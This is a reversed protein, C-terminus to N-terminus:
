GRRHKALPYWQATRGIKKCNECGPAKDGPKLTIPEALPLDFLNCGACRFKGTEYKGLAEVIDGESYGWMRGMARHFRQSLEDQALRTISAIRQKLQFQEPRVPRIDTLELFAGAFYKHDPLGYLNGFKGAALNGADLGAGEVPKLPWVMWVGGAKHIKQLDCTPTVLMAKARQVSVAAYEMGLDFADNLVREDVLSAEGPDIHSLQFRRHAARILVLYDQPPLLVLPVGDAVDGQQLGTPLNELYFADSSLPM